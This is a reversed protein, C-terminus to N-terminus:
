KATFYREILLPVQAPAEVEALMESFRSTVEQVTVDESNDVIADYHIDNLRPIVEEPITYYHKQIKSVLDKLATEVTESVTSEATNAV